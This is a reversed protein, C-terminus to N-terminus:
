AKSIAEDDNPGLGQGVVRCGRWFPRAPPKSKPSIDVGHRKYIKAQREVPLHDRYKSIVLHAVLGPGPLGAEIVRPGALATVPVSQGCSCAMVERVEVIVKFHGPGM